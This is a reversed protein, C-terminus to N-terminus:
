LSPRVTGVCGFFGHRVLLEFCAKRRHIKSILPSSSESIIKDKHSMRGERAPARKLTRESPKYEKSIYEIM